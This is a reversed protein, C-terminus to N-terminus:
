PTTEAHTIELVADLMTHIKKVTDIEPRLVLDYYAVFQSSARTFQHLFARDAQMQDLNCEWHTQPTADGDVRLHSLRFYDSFAIQLGIQDAGLHDVLSRSNKQILSYDTLTRRLSSDLIISLRGSANMEELSPFQFPFAIISDVETLAACHVSTLGQNDKALGHIINYAEDLAYRRATWRHDASSLIGNLGVMAEEHLREMYGKELAREGRATNWNAVQLGMFVGFVVIIFDIFVAFWDEKAVHAKIRRLIM